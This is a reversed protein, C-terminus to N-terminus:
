NVVLLLLQLILNGYIGAVVDDLMVGWGNKLQELKRIGLPKAIDFFRFLIFALVFNTTTLPIFLLNIWVGVMEDIVVRSPDEGWESQLKQTVWVGIFTMFIIFLAFIIQFNSNNNIEFFHVLAFLLLCALLAGATGPAIPSYGSGFGTAITKYLYNM